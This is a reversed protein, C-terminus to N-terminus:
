ITVYSVSKRYVFVNMPFMTIHRGLYPCIGPFDLRNREKILTM